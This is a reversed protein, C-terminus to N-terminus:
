RAQIAVVAHVSFVLDRHVRYIILERRTRQFWSHYLTFRQAKWMSSTVEDFDLLMNKKGNSFAPERVM